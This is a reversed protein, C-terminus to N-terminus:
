NARRLSFMGNFDVFMTREVTLRNFQFVFQYLRASEDHAFVGVYFPRVVCKVWPPPARFNRWSALMAVGFRERITKTPRDPSNFTLTTKKTFSVPM